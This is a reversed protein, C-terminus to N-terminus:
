DSSHFYDGPLHLSDTSVPTMPRFQGERLAAFNETCRHVLGYAYYCCLIVFNVLLNSVYSAMTLCFCLTQYIDLSVSITLNNFTITFMSFYFYQGHLNDRSIYHYGRLGLFYQITNWSSSGLLCIGRPFTGLITKM